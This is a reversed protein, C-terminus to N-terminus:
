ADKFHRDGCQPWRRLPQQVCGALLWSPGFLLVLFAVGVFQWTPLREALWSRVEAGGVMAQTFDRLALMFAGVRANNEVTFCLDTHLHMHAFFHPDRCQSVLWREGQLRASTEQYIHYFQCLRHLSMLSLCMWFLLTVFPQVFERLM